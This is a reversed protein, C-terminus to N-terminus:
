DILNMGRPSLFVAFPRGVFLKREVYPVPEVQMHEIDELRLRTYGGGETYFDVAARGQATATERLQEMVEAIIAGDNGPMDGREEPTFHALRTLKEHASYADGERVSELLLRALGPQAAPDLSGTIQTDDKLFLSVRTWYRSDLSGPSNDGLVLYQDDGLEVQLPLERTRGGEALKRGVYYIDRDISRIRLEAGNEPGGRLEIRAKRGDAPEAMAIRLAETGALNIRREADRARLQDLLPTGVDQRAREVGDIVLRLEGDALSFAVEHLRGPELDIASV